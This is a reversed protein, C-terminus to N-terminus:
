GGATEAEPRQDIQQNVAVIISHSPRGEAHSFM